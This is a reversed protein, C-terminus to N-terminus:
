WFTLTFKADWDSMIMNPLRHLRIIEWIYLGMLQSARVTTKVPVLHVMLM